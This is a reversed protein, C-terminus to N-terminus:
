WGKAAKITEYAKKIQSTKENALKIMEPPLGKAVLKDPHNQSMLRRYAKKVEDKSASQSVGLIKYADDLQSRSTYGSSQQRYGGGNYGYYRQYNQEARSQQEYQHFNFGRLGLQNYIQQLANRKESSMHGGANAMHLQYEIFARLLMPQRGCSQRLQAITSALDFDSRKGQYFCKIAREKAAGTLGLHTIVQRAAAIEHESVRGDSKAVYGMISFTADFFVQQAAGSSHSGANRQYGHRMLFRDFVGTDYLHGLLLGVIIGIPGFFFGVILGIIKGNLTMPTTTDYNPTNTKVSSIAM